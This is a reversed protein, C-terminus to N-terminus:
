YAQMVRSGVVFDDVGLMIYHRIRSTTQDKVRRSRTRSTQRGALSARIVSVFRRFVSRLFVHLHSGRGRGILRLSSTRMFWCGEDGKGEGGSASPSKATAVLTDQSRRQLASREQLM